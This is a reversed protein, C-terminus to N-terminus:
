RTEEELFLRLREYNQDELVFQETRLHALCADFRQKEQLIFYTELVSMYTEQTHSAQILLDAAQLAKERRGLSLLCRLYMPYAEYLEAGPQGELGELVDCYIKEYKKRTFRDVAGSQMYQELIKLYAGVTAPDNPNREWSHRGQFFQEDWRTQIEVLASSAYHSVETDQDELAIKLERVYKESDYRFLDLVTNRREQVSDFVLIDQIASLDLARRTEPRYLRRSKKKRNGIDPLPEQSKKVLFLSLVLIGLGSIPMMLLIIMWYFHYKKQKPHSLLMILFLILVAFVYVVLIALAIMDAKSM